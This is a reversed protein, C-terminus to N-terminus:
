VDARCSRRFQFSQVVRHDAEITDVPQRLRRNRVASSTSSIRTFQKELCVGFKSTGARKTAVVVVRRNWQVDPVMHTVAVVRSQEALQSLHVAVLAIWEVARNRHSFHDLYDAAVTAEM